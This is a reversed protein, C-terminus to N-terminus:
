GWNALQILFDVVSVEGDGDLDGPAFYQLAPNPALITAQSGDDATM